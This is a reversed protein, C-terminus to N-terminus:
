KATSSSKPIPPPNSVRGLFLISNTSKDILLFLFPHDAVFPTPISSSGIAVTGGSAETGEENVDVKAGHVADSIFLPESTIGKLDARSSFATVIGMSQLVEKLRIQTTLEFQPLKLDIKRYNSDKGLLELLWTNVTAQDLEKELIPLLDKEPVPASGKQAKPLIVVAAFREGEYPIEILNASKTEVYRFTRVLNMMQVPVPKGQSVRFDASKTFDKDFPTQWKRKFHIANVVVIQVDGNLPKSILKEIQHDTKEGVWDNIAKLALPPNKFDADKIEGACFRRIAGSFDPNLVLNKRVWVANANVLGNAKNSQGLERFFNQENESLTPLPLVNHIEELTTGRSGMQIMGLVSAISTPSFFINGDDAAGNSSLQRYLSLAFGNSAQVMSNTERPLQEAGDSIASVGSFCVALTAAYALLNKELTM